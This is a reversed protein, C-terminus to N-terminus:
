LSYTRVLEGQLIDLDSDAIGLDLTVAGVTKDGLGSRCVDVLQDLSQDLPHLFSCFLVQARGPVARGGPFVPLTRGAARGQPGPAGCRRPGGGSVLPDRAAPCGPVRPGRRERVIPWRHGDALPARRRAGELSAGGGRAGHAGSSIPIAVRSCLALSARLRLRVAHEADPM